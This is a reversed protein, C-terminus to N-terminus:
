RSGSLGIVMVSVGRDRAGDLEVFFIRQWAGLQLRGGVVNLTESTRLFLAKCHAHGNAREGPVLNVTRVSFDDHRYRRQRSASRELTRRLDELLLPEGENVVIAATTHLSQVNATGQWVQALEVCERVQDTLDIFQLCADTGIRITRQYTCLAATQQQTWTM